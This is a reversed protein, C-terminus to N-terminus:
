ATRIIYAYVRWVARWRPDTAISARRMAKLWLCVRQHDIIM